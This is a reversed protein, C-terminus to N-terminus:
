HMLKAIAAYISLTWPNQMQMELFSLNDQM